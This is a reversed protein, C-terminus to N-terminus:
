DIQRVYVVTSREERSLNSETNVVKGQPLKRNAKSDKGGEEKEEVRRTMVSM